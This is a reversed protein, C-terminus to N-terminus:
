YIGQPHKIAVRKGWPADKQQEGQRGKSYFAVMDKVGGGGGGLADGLQYSSSRYTFTTMSLKASKREIEGFWLM